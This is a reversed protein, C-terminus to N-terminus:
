IFMVVQDANLIKMVKESNIRKGFLNNKLREVCVKEKMIVYKQAIEEKLYNTNYKNVEILNLLM